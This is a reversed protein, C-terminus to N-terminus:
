IKETGRHRQTYIERHRWATILEVVAQWADFELV